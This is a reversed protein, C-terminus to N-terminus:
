SRSRARPRGGGGGGGGRRGRDSPEPITERPVDPPLPQLGGEQAQKASLSIKGTDSAITIVKVPIPDGVRVFENVSKVYGESIESVHCLGETGPFIEVFCGFTTLKKVTGQYVKGLEAEKTIANIQEIAAEAAKGDVSAISVSGDDEIDIKVGTEETIRRINKGGPGILAGIKDPNIKITLIRPAFSSIDPRPESIEGNMIDLIKLRAERADSFAKKLIEDTVGAIKLDMQLATLGHETGAAKFDMDGLHDEVGAIDTLVKWRGQDDTVLGMAIGSVPAKIPVGADMLALSGSCVTAMSSSGNSELIESVLRITYPFKEEEPLIPEIARSALAGHGIERRGTGGFRGTEGVSFPPFNYHLMFSKKIDGELSDIRQEDDGTGLTTVMLSQTQGRTFLSSGHTRPLVGTECTINRIDQFGRGDPRKGKELILQRVFDKEVKGFSAKVPKEDFGEAEKDFQTIVKEDYVKQVADAVEEKALGGGYIADFSNGVAAKVKEVIDAPIEEAVVEQKPKGARRMFEASAAAIKRIEEHGFKIADFMDDESVENAGAEIMVIKEETGVLVLDLESESMQEFSPNVIFNGDIRGVRVSAAPQDFPIDSVLLANIAGNIALIDASNENDYSLVTVIIQVENRYHKNFLSRIPRDILRCTLIEKETPRGERKFYGGPIRGGAYAKERYEITLPFFDRGPDPERKCVAAALVVTGGCSVLVSGHAQKAMRGTEFSLTSNGVELSAREITM